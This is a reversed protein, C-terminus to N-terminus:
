GSHSQRRLITSIPVLVLGKDKLSPLWTALAEITADHPHGIAIAYGQRRAVQETKHLQAMVAEVTEENDIFVDRALAPVGGRRAESIGATKATTVSDLFMLGRKSLEEMVVRMGAADQTFRSGMHNNLGILGEFRSLGEAVRRRIEAAPLGVTLVEGDPGADYSAGQPEMPMHLMLEHGRARASATMRPLDKAYSMFSATIPGPLAVIRDSRKRDVGLDDIVMAIMPRGDVRPPAVAWKRWGSSSGPLSLAAPTAQSPPPTVVREIVNGALVPAAAAPKVVPQSEPAPEPAPQRIAAIEIRDAEEEFVERVRRPPPDEVPPSAAIAAPPTASIHAPPAASIHAPPAASIHAPPPAVPKPQGAAALQQQQPPKRTAALQQRHAEIQMGILIGIFLLILGGFLLSMWRSAQAAVGRRKGATSRRSAM